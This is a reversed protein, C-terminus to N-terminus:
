GAHSQRAAGAMLSPFGGLWSKSDSGRGRDGLRSDKLVALAMRQTKSKWASHGPYELEDLFEGAVRELLGM